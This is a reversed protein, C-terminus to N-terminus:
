AASYSNAFMANPTSTPVFIEDPLTTEISTSATFLMGPTISTTTSKSRNMRTEACPPSVSAGVCPTFSMAYKPWITAM